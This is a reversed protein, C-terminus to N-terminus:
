PRSFPVSQLWSLQHRQTAASAVLFKLTENKTLKQISFLPGSLMKHFKMETNEKINGLNGPHKKWFFDLPRKGISFTLLPRLSSYFFPFGM